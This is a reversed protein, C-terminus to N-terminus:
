DITKKRNTALKGISIGSSPAGPFDQGFKIERPSLAKKLKAGTNKFKLKQSM